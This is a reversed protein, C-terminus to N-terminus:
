GVYEEQNDPYDFKFYMRQKRTISAETVSSDCIQFIEAWKFSM